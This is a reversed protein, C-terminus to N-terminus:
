HRLSMAYVGLIAALFVVLVVVFVRQRRVATRQMEISLQQNAVAEKYGALHEKQLDRIESLLRVVDEDM